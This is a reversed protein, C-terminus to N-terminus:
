KSSETKCNSVLWAIPPDEKRFNSFNEDTKTRSSFNHQDFFELEKLYKQYTEGSKDILGWRSLATEGSYSIITM